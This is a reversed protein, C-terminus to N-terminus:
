SNGSGNMVIAGPAVGDQPVLITEGIGLSRPLEGDEVPNDGITGIERPPAPIQALARRWVNPDGKCGRLLNTGFIRAFCPAHFADALGAAELKMLCGAYPNNSMAFLLRGDRHLRRILEVNGSDAMINERHWNRMRLFAEEAPLSFEAIFDPYDWFVLTDALQLIAKEAGHKDWGHELMLDRIVPFLFNGGLLGAPAVAGSRYHTLTGDIDVLYYKSRYETM